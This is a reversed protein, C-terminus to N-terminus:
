TRGPRGARRPRPRPPPRSRRAAPAPPWRGGRRARSPHSRSRRHRAPRRRRSRRARHRDGDDLVAHQGAEDAGRESTTASDNEPWVASVSAPAVAASSRPADRPRPTPRRRAPRAPRLRPRRPARGRRRWGSAERRARRAPRVPRPPPPPRPRAARPGRAPRPRPRAAAGGRRAAPGAAVVRGRRQGPGDAARPRQDVARAGEATHGGHAPLVLDVLVGLRRGEAVGQGLDAVVLQATPTLVAVHGALHQRQDLEAVAELGGVDGRRKASISSWISSTTLSMQVTSARPRRAAPGATRGRAPRRRSRAAGPRRRRRPGRASGRARRSSPRSAPRAPSVHHDRPSDSGTGTPGLGRDLWDRDHLSGHWRGEGGAAVEADGVEGHGGEPAPLDVEGLVLHGAQARQALLEARELRQGAGADGARQVHGDLGGHEDLGEGLEAGLHAPGAAVDEGGLVM